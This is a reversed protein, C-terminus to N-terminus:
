IGDETEVQEVVKNEFKVIQSKGTNLIMDVLMVDDEIFKRAMSVEILMPLNTGGIVYIKENGRACIVATKFPSGGALDSLVIIADCDALTDYAEVLKKELDEVAMEQTFDVAVYNEQEGGILHLSSTLGTAFNGHGTVVLGIM